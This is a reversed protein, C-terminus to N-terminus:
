DRACPAPEAPACPNTTTPTGQAGSAQTRPLEALMRPRPLLAEIVVLVVITLVPLILVAIADLAFARWLQAARLRSRDVFEPRSAKSDFHAM